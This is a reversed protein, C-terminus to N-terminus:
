DSIPNYIYNAHSLALSLSPLPSSSHSQTIDTAQPPYDMWITQHMFIPELKHSVFLTCLEPTLFYFIYM